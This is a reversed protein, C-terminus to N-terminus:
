PGPKTILVYIGVPVQVPLTVVDAAVTFAVLAYYAPQGPVSETKWKPLYSPHEGEILTSKEHAMAHNAVVHHTICGSTLVSSALFLLMLKKMAIQEAANAGFAFPSRHRRDLGGSLTFLTRVGGNAGSSKHTSM